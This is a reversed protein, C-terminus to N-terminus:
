SEPKDIPKLELIAKTVDWRRQEREEWWRWARLVWAQEPVGMLYCALWQSAVIWATIYVLAGIESILAAQVQPSM